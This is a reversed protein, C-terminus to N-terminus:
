RSRAKEPRALAWKLALPTMLTTVLAMLVVASFLHAVEPPPACGLVALLCCLSVICFFSRLPNQHANLLLRM